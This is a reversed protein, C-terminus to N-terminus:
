KTKLKNKIILIYNLIFTKHPQMNETLDNKLQICFSFQCDQM